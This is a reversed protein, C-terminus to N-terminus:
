CALPVQLRWGLVATIRGPCLQVRILSSLLRVAMPKSGRCRSAAARAIAGAPQAGGGAGSEGRLPTSGM